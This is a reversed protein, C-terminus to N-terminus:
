PSMRRGLTRFLRRFFGGSDRQRKLYAGPFSIEIVRDALATIYHPLPAISTVLISAKQGHFRKELAELIATHAAPGEVNDFGLVTQGQAALGLELSRMLTTKGSAAPGTIIYFKRKNM